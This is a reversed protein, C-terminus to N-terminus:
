QKIRVSNIHLKTLKRSHLEECFLMSLNQADVTIVRFLNYGDQTVTKDAYEQLLQERSKMYATVETKPINSEPRTLKINTPPAIGGPTVMHNWGTTIIAIVVLTIVVSAGFNGIEQMCIACVMSATFGIVTATAINLKM